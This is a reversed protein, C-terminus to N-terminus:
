SVASQQDSPSNHLYNRGDTSQLKTVRIALHHPTAATKIHNALTVRAEFDTLTPRLSLLGFALDIAQRWCPAKAIAGESHRRCHPAKLPAEIHENCSKLTRPSLVPEANYRGQLPKRVTSTHPLRKRDQPGCNSALAANAQM